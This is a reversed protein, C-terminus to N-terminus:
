QIKRLRSLLKFEYYNTPILFIQTALLAMFPGYQNAILGCIYLVISFSISNGLSNFSAITARQKETFEKQMLKQQATDSAGYLPLSIMVFIPSLISHTLAALINGLTSIIWSIALVKVIGLKDIIKGAFWFSPVVGGEQVARALGIAWTPWVAAYVAAQFEYAASGGGGFIQALSMYRLNLNGRIELFAEKLHSYVNTDVKEEHKIDILLVATLLAIFQPLINIWMFLGISWNALLGSLLAGIFMAVGVISNVKGYYHHYESEKHQNSLLNHLYANNNGSFFSRRAGELFSGLIFIWYNNGGAYLAYALVSCLAGLVITKKRGIFDSFIGTPVELLAQFVWVMSIISAATAYSETVQHFYVVKIPLYFDLSSFFSFVNFLRINSKLKLYQQPYLNEILM